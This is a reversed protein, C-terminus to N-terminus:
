KDSAKARSRRTGFGIGLIPLLWALGSPEPVATAAAAGAGSGSGSTNGFRTKWYSYDGPGITGDGDGDAGTGPTVSDGLTDRYVTYDAADVVGNGNYDGEVTVVTGTSIVINDIMIDMDGIKSGYLGFYDFQEMEIVFNGNEEGQDQNILKVGPIFDWSYTAGDLNFYALIGDASKTLKFVIHHPLSNNLIPSPLTDYTPAAFDSGNASGGSIGLEQCVTIENARPDVALDGVGTRFFYGKDQEGESPGYTYDGFFGGRLARNSADTEYNVGVLRFDFEAQLFEDTEFLGIPNDPLDASVVGVSGSGSRDVLMANGSNLQGVGDDNAVSLTAGGSGSWTIDLPDDGDDFGGDTFPDDVIADGFVGTGGVCSMVLIVAAFALKIMKM